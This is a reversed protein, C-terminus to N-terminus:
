GRSVKVQTGVDVDNVECWGGLVELVMVVPFPCTHGELSMAQAAQKVYAVVGGEAIFIMDLNFPVDKMWYSTYSPEDYVFLMGADSALSKRGGLGRRQSLEDRVVEARITRTGNLTAFTVNAREM